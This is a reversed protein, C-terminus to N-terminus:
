RVLIIKGRSCTKAGRLEYFYVGAPLSRSQDDSGNWLISYEKPELFWSKVKRGTRDYVALAGPETLNLEFRVTRHAPVPGASIKMGRALLPAEVIGLVTDKKLIRRDPDFRVDSVAGGILLTFSQDALSDWVSVMTTDHATTIVQLQIPMKFIPANTQAQKIRVFLSSSDAGHSQASWRWEYEPHGQDYIWEDFFWKLDKGSIEECVARYEDVTANGYKYRDFYKPFAAFFGSDGMVYRLMHLVWAGKCYTLGYIFLKDGPLNYLSHRYSLDSEFYAGFGTAYYQMENFFQVAGYKYETWLAESYTSFGEKLWLHPWDLATVCDGWWQHALEHAVTGENSGTVVARDVTTITQHEMGGYKFPHVEAMGYKEFPYDGFKQSYFDMMEPVTVFRTRALMTDSPYVYYVLPVTDNNVRVYRDTVVAYKSITVCILYTTIPYDTRWHYTSSLTMSKASSLTTPAVDLLIGNSAVVYGTPVTAFVECQAKDFMHDYCPYWYPADFPSAVTYATTDLTGPKKPYYNFGLYYGPNLPDPRAWGHYKVKVEFPQNTGYGHPLIVTLTTDNYQFTAPGGDVRVSDCVLAYMDLTVTDLNATNSKAQVTVTGSFTSDTMPLNLELIYKQVDYTHTSEAVLPRVTYNDYFEVPGFSRQAAFVLFLTWVM